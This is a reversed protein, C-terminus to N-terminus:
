LGLSDALNDLAAAWKEPTEYTGDSIEQRVREVLEWRVDQVGPVEFVSLVEEDPPCARRTRPLVKPCTPGLRYM